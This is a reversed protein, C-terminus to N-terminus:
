HVCLKHVCSKHLSLIIMILHMKHLEDDMRCLLYYLLLADFTKVCKRQSNRWVQASNIYPKKVANKVASASTFYICYIIKTGKMMIRMPLQTSPITIKVRIDNCCAYVPVVIVLVIFVVFVFVIVPLFRLCAVCFCVHSSAPIVFLFLFM